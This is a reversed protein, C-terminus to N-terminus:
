FELELRYVHNANDAFLARRDTESFDSVADAMRGMTEDFSGFLRDTPFDSAFLCRRAGFLDITRLVRERMAFEDPRRWVFGLGSIKVYVHPLVALAAMGAQWEGADHGMGAHNLIVPIEPHRSFLRALVPFQGPYAQLDFSLGHKGLLSFGHQWASDATLDRPTYTLDPDAHWNVIHRIGRVRSRAAQAELVVGIDPADLTAAAVIGSPWGATEGLTQLWDTEALGQASDVGAEVHIMGIVNWNRAEARYDALRYDRAIPTVDGNPGGDTLPPTLWPYRLRGLEWLHAHADIFPLRAM